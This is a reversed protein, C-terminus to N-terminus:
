ILENEALSKVAPSVENYFLLDPMKCMMKNKSVVVHICSGITDYVAANGSNIQM